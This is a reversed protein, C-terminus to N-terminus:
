VQKKNINLYISPSPLSLPHTPRQTIHWNPHILPTGRRQCLSSVFYVVVYKVVM